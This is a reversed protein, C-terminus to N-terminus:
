FLSYNGGKRFACTNLKPLSRGSLYKKKAVEFLKNIILAINGEGSMRRGYKTDNINGGHLEEIQHLVKDVRDPFNKALWDNFIEGIAGNLRVVTYGAALAGHDAAAKIIAPIEHHNIGPIIPANMIGVPIGANALRELAQLKKSASATRPELISRLKEDLTNISFSVHVLGSKALEQLIDLDRTVMANKTLLSVPHQYKLFVELLQRTLKYKKELPQYCDTNGSLMIPHPKWTKKLLQQELLLPAKKKVIIKQEFDLGASFGYYEHSNRAYCYICGHECGQYPNLSYALGLDPSSIKNVIKGPSDHFVQTGEKVLLPEDLGELHDTVYQQKSFRNSTKIQAGRGKFYDENM